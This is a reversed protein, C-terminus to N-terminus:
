IVWFLRRKSLNIKLCVQVTNTHYVKLFPTNICTMRSPSSLCSSTFSLSSIFAKFALFLSLFLKRHQNFILLRRSWAFQCIDMDILRPMKMKTFAQQFITRFFVVNHTSLHCKQIYLWEPQFSMTVKKSLLRKLHFLRHFIGWMSAATFLFELNGTLDPLRM